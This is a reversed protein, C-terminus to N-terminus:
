GGANRQEIQSDEDGVLETPGHKYQVPGPMATKWPQNAVLEHVTRIGEVMAHRDTGFGPLEVLMPPSSDDAKYLHVAQTPFAFRVSLKNAIELMQQQAITNETM